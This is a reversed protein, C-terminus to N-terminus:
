AAAPSRAPSCCRVTFAARAVGPRPRKSRRCRHGDMGIRAPRRGDGHCHDLRHDRESDDLQDPSAAALRDLLIDKPTPISISGPEARTISTTNKRGMEGLRARIGPSPETGICSGTHNDPGSSPAIVPLRYRDFFFSIGCINLLAGTAIQHDCSHSLAGRQHPPLAPRVVLPWGGPSGSKGTASALDIRAALNGEVVGAARAVVALLGLAVLSWRYAPVPATLPWLSCTSASSSLRPSPPSSKGRTSTGKPAWM